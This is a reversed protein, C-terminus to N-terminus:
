LAVTHISLASAVHYIFATLRLENGQFGDRGEDQKDECVTSNIDTGGNIRLQMQSAACM